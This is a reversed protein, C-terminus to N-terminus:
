DDTAGVALSVAKWGGFGSGPGGASHIAEHRRGDRAAVTGPTFVM